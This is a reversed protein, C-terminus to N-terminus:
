NKWKVSESQLVNKHILQSQLDELHSKLKKLALDNRSKKIFHKLTNILLRQNQIQGAANQTQKLDSLNYKEFGALANICDGQYRLRKALLRYHHINSVKDPDMKKKYHNMKSFDRIMRLNLQKLIAAAVHSEEMQQLNKVLKKIQKNEHKLHISKLCLVAKEKAKKQQSFVYKLFHKQTKQSLNKLKLSKLAETEVQIDRLPGLDKRVTQILSIINKKRGKTWLHRSLTVIAQLKQTLIRVDHINKASTKSRTIHIQKEYDEWTQVLAQSLSIPPTSM